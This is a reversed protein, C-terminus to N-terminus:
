STKDNGASLMRPSFYVTLKLNTKKEMKKRCAKRRMQKQYSTEAADTEQVNLSRPAKLLQM